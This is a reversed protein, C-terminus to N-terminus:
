FAVLSVANYKPTLFHNTVLKLRLERCSADFTPIHSIMDPRLLAVLEDFQSEVNAMQAISHPQEVLRGLTSDLYKWAETFPIFRLQEHIVPMLATVTKWLTLIEELNRAEKLLGVLRKLEGARIEIVHMGLNGLFYVFDDKLDAYGSIDSEILEMTEKFVDFDYNLLIDKLKSWIVKLPSVKPPDPLLVIVNHIRSYIRHVDLNNKAKSLMTVLEVIANNTAIIRLDEMKKAWEALCVCKFFYKEPFTVMFDFFEDLNQLYDEREALTTQRRNYFTLAASHICWDLCEAKNSQRNAKEAFDKAATIIDGYTKSGEITQRCVTKFAVVLSQSKRNM